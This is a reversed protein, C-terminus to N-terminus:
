GFIRVRPVDALVKEIYSQPYSYKAKSNDRWSQSPEKFNTSWKKGETTKMADDLKQKFFKMEKFQTTTVYGDCLYDQWLIGPVGGAEYTAAWWLYVSSLTNMYAGSCAGPINYENTYYDEGYKENIAIDRMRNFQPLHIPIIGQEVSKQTLERVESPSYPMTIYDSHSYITGSAQMIEAIIACRRQSYYVHRYRQNSTSPNVGGVMWNGGETRLNIKANPMTNHEAVESLMASFNNAREITRYLDLDTIARSWDSYIKSTDTYFMDTVSRKADAEPNIKNISEYYSGYANNLNVVNGYLTTLWQKFDFITKVGMEYRSRLDIRMWGRTDEITIPVVGNGVQRINDGYRYFTYNAFIRNISAHVPDGWGISSGSLPKDLLDNVYMDGRGAFLGYNYPYITYIESRIGMKRTLDM